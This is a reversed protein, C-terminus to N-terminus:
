TNAPCRFKGAEKSASNPKSAPGKYLLDCFFIRRALLKLALLRSEPPDSSGSFPRLECMEGDCSILTNHSFKVM